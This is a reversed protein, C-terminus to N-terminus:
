ITNKDIQEESTLPFLVKWQLIYSIVLFLVIFSLIIVAIPWRTDRNLLLTVSPIAFWVGICSLYAVLLSLQESTYKKNFIM